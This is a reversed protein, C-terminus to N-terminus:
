EQSSDDELTIDDFYEELDEPSLNESTEVKFSRILDRKEAKSIYDCNSLSHSYSRGESKCVRCQPKYTSNNGSYPNRNNGTNPKAKRFFPKRSQTAQSQNRYSKNPTFVRSTKIDDHRLEELFGDLADVIQPQLDKLTM